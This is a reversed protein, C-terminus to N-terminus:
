RPWFDNAAPQARLADAKASMREIVGDISLRSRQISADMEDETPMKVSSMFDEIMDTEFQEEEAPSMNSPPLDEEIRENNFELRLTAGFASIKIYSL